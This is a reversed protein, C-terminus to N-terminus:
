WVVMKGCVESLNLQVHTQLWELRETNEQQRVGENVQTCLEKSAMMAQQLFETDPDSPATHELM